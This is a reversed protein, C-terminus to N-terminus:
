IMKESLNKLGYELASILKRKKFETLVQTSIKTRNNRKEHVRTLYRLSLLIKRDDITTYVIPTIKGLKILYHESMKRNKEELVEKYKEEPFLENLVKTCVEECKKWDGHVSIYIKLEDWVYDWSHFTVHFKNIIVVNNPIHVLRNTSQDSHPDMNLELLTFRMLGINVVDGKSGLIEVRDGVKFGSSGHIMLWGFINLTIDKTSIILGAASLALITPLYSIKSYFTIFLAIVATFFFTYRIKKRRNYIESISESRIIKDLVRVTSQYLFILFLAVYIFFLFDDALSRDKSTLIRIPDIVKLIEDM